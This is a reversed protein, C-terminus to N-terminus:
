WGQDNIGYWSSLVIRNPSKIPKPVRNPSAISLKKLLLNFIAGPLGNTGNSWNSETRPARKNMYMKCGNLKFIMNKESIIVNMNVRNLL